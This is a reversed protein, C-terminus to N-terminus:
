LHQPVNQNAHLFKLPTDPINLILVLNCTPHRHGNQPNMSAKKRQQTQTMCLTMCSNHLLWALAM